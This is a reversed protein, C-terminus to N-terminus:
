FYKNVLGYVLSDHHASPKKSSIESVYKNPKTFRIVPIITFPGESWFSFM